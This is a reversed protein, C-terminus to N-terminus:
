QCKEIENSFAEILGVVPELRVDLEALLVEQLEKSFLSSRATPLGQQATHLGDTPTQRLQEFRKELYLPVCALLNQERGGLTQEMVADLNALQRLPPSAKALVQRVHARLPAIKSAMNSQQQRYRRHHSAYDAGEEDAAEAQRLSPSRKAPAGTDDFAMIAKVLESRVRHFEDGLAIKSVARAEPSTGPAARPSPQLVAHLTVSDAANLWLSLRQATDPKTPERELSAADGLLRVLTSSSFHRSLNVGKSILADNMMDSSVGNM